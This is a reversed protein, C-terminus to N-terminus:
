KRHIIIIDEDTGNAKRAEEFIDKKIQLFSTPNDLGHNHICVNHKDYGVIPVFHGHYGKERTGKVVNWDLLVIPINNEGVNSLLEELSMVREELIVGAEKAEKVLKESQQAAGSYKQYYKLKLNENNFYVHRSFFFTKYGSLAAAAAIQITSVGKNEKIKMREELVELGLDKDFYAILMRLAAPGCNFPTTQQYFPVALKM